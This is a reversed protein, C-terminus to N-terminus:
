SLRSLQAATTRYREPNTKSAGRLGDAETPDDPTILRPERSFRSAEANRYEPLETELFYYEDDDDDDGYDIHFWNM